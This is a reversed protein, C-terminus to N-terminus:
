SWLYSSWDPLRRAVFGKVGTMAWADGWDQCLRLFSKGTIVWMGEPRPGWLHEPWAKVALWNGWSQDLMFVCDTGIDEGTTQKLWDRFEDTDDYGTCCQAHGGISKLLSILGKTPSATLTSGTDIVGESHLIDQLMEVTPSSVKWAKGVQDGRIADSLSKPPGSSGWKTGADEDKIPTSLDLGNGYDKEESQGITTLITCGTGMAMGESRHGRSGYTHALGHRIELRVLDGAAVAMGALTMTACRASWARCSGTRQSGAYGNPLHRMTYAHNIARKGKGTGQLAFPMVQSVTWQNLGTVQRFEDSAYEAVRRAWDPAGKSECFCGQFGREYAVQEPSTAAGSYFGQPVRNFNDLTNSAPIQDFVNSM